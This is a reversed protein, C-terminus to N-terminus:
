EVCPGVTLTGGDVDLVAVSGLAVCVQDPRGGADVGGHGIKLGGLVPVGLKELHDKLVEVVGWGRDIYDDFGTFLGLAVGALNNLLGSRLLQVLQRDVRGIGIRREDELLLIAGDLPPLGSGVAHAVTSLNGGVLPGTARGPVRIRAPLAEPESFVTVPEADVMLAKASASAAAGFLCGHITPLGCEKWLALHLATIDSFGVVPKPDSRVADFNIRHAIRYAGAGGRSAIIARVGPDVFADQLDDLRDDDRGAMFGWQDRAHDGIEVVLGWSELIGVLDSIESSEPFSAPSVVRVRQGPELRPWRAAHM